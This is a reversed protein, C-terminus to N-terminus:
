GERRVINFDTISCGNERCYNSLWNDADGPNNFVKLDEWALKGPEIATLARVVWNTKKAM